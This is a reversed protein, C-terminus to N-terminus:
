PQKDCSDGLEGGANLFTITTTKQSDDYKARQGDLAAGRFTLVRAGTDYNYTGAKGDVDTYRGPGGIAFNLGGRAVLHGDSFAYCEYSGTAPSAAQRGPGNGGTAAPATAVTGSNGHSTEQGGAAGALLLALGLGGCVCVLLVAVAVGGFILPLPSKAGAPKQPGPAPSEGVPPPAGAPTGAVITRDVPAVPAGEVLLTTAGVQLRDGPHVERTGTVPQGNVKTGNASGLDTITLGSDPLDFRARTRSIGQDDLVLGSDAQRGITLGAAIPVRRGQDLGSEVVLVYSTDL